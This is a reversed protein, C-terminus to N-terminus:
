KEPFYSTKLIERSIIIEYSNILNPFAQRLEDIFLLLEENSNVLIEIDIKESIGIAEVLYIVKKHAMLYKKFEKIKLKSYNSLKFFLKYYDLNLKKYDIIARYTLIIKDEDMKKLRYSVVKLSLSLSNSIDVISVRKKNCLEKLIKYEVDDLEYTKSIPSSQVCILKKSKVQSFSYSLYFLNILISEEQRQVYKGYKDYIEEMIKKYEQLDKVLFAIGLDYPGAIHYIWFLEKVSKLYKFFNNKEEESINQLCIMVRVYFFGLKSFNIVPYYGLIIGSTELKKIRYEVSQKSLNLEKAIQSNTVKFNIDLMELLKLDKKDLKSM